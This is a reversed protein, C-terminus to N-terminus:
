YRPADVRARSERRRLRYGATLIVLAGLALFPLPNPEPVSVTPVTSPDLVWHGTAGSCVEPNPVGLWCDEDSSWKAVSWDGPTGFLSAFGTFDRGYLSGSLQGNSDVDLLATLISFGAPNPSADIASLGNIAFEFTLIPSNDLSPSCGGEFYACNQDLDIHGSLWAADAIELTGSSSDITSSSTLQEWHYIVGAASGGSAILGFAALVSIILAKM